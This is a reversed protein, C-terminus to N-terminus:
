GNNLAKKIGLAILDEVPLDSNSQLIEAAQQKISVRKDGLYEKDEDTMLSFDCDIESCCLLTDLILNFMTKVDLNNINASGYPLGNQDSHLALLRMVDDDDLDSYTLAEVLMKSREGRDAAKFETICHDPTKNIQRGTEALTPLMKRVTNIDKENCVLALNNLFAETDLNFRKIFVLNFAVKNYVSWASFGKLGRLNIM